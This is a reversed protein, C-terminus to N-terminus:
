FPSDVRPTPNPPKSAPKHAPKAPKPSKCPWLVFMGNGTVISGMQDLMEPNERIHKLTVSALQGVTVQDSNCVLVGDLADHVGIVYGVGVWASRESSKQEWHELRLKLDNGTYYYRSTSKASNAACPWLSQFAKVVVRDASVNLVEPNENMYKLTANSIQGITVGQPACVSSGTVTDHVGIVYGLGMSSAISDNRDELRAKLDNGSLFEAQAPSWLGFLLACLLEIRVKM